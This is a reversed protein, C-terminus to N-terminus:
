TCLKHFEWPQHPAKFYGYSRNHFTKRKSTIKTFSLMNKFFLYKLMDSTEYICHYYFNFYNFENNKESM